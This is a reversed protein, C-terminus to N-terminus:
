KIIKVEPELKVGFKEFVTKQIHEILAEVDNATAGGTNVVFGAHKESVQAGGISVGMLNSDQILKGAFFGQPRKFTSGASPMNVPQKENRLRTYEGMKQKIEDANGKKFELSAGLIICGNKQFISSRYGFEANKASMTQLQGLSDIYDITKVVNKIEGGYAGANMFIAGGLTGPIGSLEEFGSLEAKLLKSALTSLLIGSQAYVTEGNIDCDAFDKCIQIVVGKIGEDSVLMNSGNGMIMYPINNQKCFAVTSQIQEINQASIFCQAGGGIRFSTHNKMPEDFLANPIINTIEKIESM